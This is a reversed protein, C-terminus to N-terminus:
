RVLVIKGLQGDSSPADDEIIFYGNTYAVPQLILGRDHPNGTLRVDMIRAFRIGSITFETGSGSDYSDIHVFFGVVDGIRQELPFRYTVSLGPNGTATYTNPNGAADFFILESTNFESELEEATIGNTIQTQVGVSGQNDIGVNLTGFNGAADSGDRTNSPLGLEELAVDEDQFKWPYLKIERIGDSSSFVSEGYGYDDDGNAVLDNYIAEHITFPLFDGDRVIRYGGVRDDVAARATATMSADNYGFVRAFFLPIPGNSSSTTRRLTVEVANWRDDNALPLGPSDYHHRGYALDALELQTAQHLTPNTVSFQQSRSSILGTLVDHTDTLGADTLYSSAGALAAADAARQLDSKASYMRGVDITLAAFGAIAVMFLAIQVAVVGRRRARPNVRACNSHRSM